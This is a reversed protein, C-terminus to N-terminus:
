LAWGQGEPGATLVWVRDELLAVTHEFHAAYSGDATVYTWHDPELRIEKTGLSVMPEVALTLGPRLRFDAYRGGTYNPVQPREWMEQGIGHGCLDEIVHFGANHVHKEMKRAVLSWRPKSSMNEIAIRLAGEAAALLRRAEASVEGVAYTVAADGCWGDLRVGIDISVVDGARLHRPGPIGHVIEQNISICTAAPFPVKGPVGKFLPSGNHELIVKEVAADIRATSVGPEILRAAAQHAQWTILGARRMREIQALRKSFSIM